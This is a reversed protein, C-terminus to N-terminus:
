YFKCALGPRLFSITVATCDLAHNSKVLLKSTSVPGLFLRQWGHLFRDHAGGHGTAEHSPLCIKEKRLSEPSYAHSSGLLGPFIGSHVETGLSIRASSPKLPVRLANAFSCPFLSLRLQSPTVLVVRVSPCGM